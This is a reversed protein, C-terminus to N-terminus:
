YLRIRVLLNTHRTVVNPFFIQQQGGPLSYGNDIKEKYIGSVAQSATPGEWGYIKPLYEEAESKADYEPVTFEYVRQYNNWEPMVATGGIVDSLSNPPQRTWYGGTMAYMSTSPDNTVRYLKDGPKFEVLSASDRFTNANERPLDYDANDIGFRSAPILLDPLGNPVYREKKISPINNYDDIVIRHQYIGKDADRLREYVLRPDVAGRVAKKLRQESLGGAVWAKVQGRMELGVLRELDDLWAETPTSSKVPSMKGATIGQYAYERSVPAVFAGKAGATRGM